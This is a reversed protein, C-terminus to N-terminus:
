DQWDEKHPLHDVNWRQRAWETPEILRTQREYAAHGDVFLVEAGGYHRRSPNEANQWNEPDIATDWNGDATSDAIAIMDGPVKIEAMRVNWAWPVTPDDVHAGLGYHVNPRHFTESVGWSNYGYCFLDTSSNMPREDLQYGYARASALEAGSYGSLSGRVPKWWSRPDASPCWWLQEQLSAYRRLRPAYTNIPRSHQPSASHEGPFYGRHEDLYMTLCLGMQHLNAGCKVAKAQERAQSLSPLLISILLAIIAVVVLLEILTFASRVKFRVIFQKM